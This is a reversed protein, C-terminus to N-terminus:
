TINKGGSYHVSDRASALQCDHRDASIQTEMDGDTTETEWILLCKSLTIATSSMLKSTAACDVVASSPPLPAPLVVVSEMSSPSSSGVEPLTEMKPTSM